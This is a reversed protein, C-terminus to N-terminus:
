DIIIENHIVISEELIKLLTNSSCLCILKAYSFEHHIANVQM